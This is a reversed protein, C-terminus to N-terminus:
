SQIPGLWYFMLTALLMTLLLPRLHRSGRREESTPKVESLLYHNLLTNAGADRREPSTRREPNTDHYNKLRRSRREGKREDVKMHAKVLQEYGEWNSQGALEPPLLSELQGAASWNERDQSLEDDLHIRGLLIHRSVNEASFPGRIVGNRRTYWCENSQKQYRDFLLRNM